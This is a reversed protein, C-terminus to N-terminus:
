TLLLEHRWRWSIARSQLSGIPEIYNRFRAMYVAVPPRKASAPQRFSPGLIYVLPEINHRFTLWLRAVRFWSINTFTPTPRQPVATTPSPDTNQATVSYETKFINAVYLLTNLMAEEDIRHLFSRLTPEGVLSKHEM